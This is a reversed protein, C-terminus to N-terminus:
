MWGRTATAFDDSATRGPRNLLVNFGSGHTLYADHDRNWGGSITLFVNVDGIVGPPQGSVTRQDLWGVASGDPIVGGDLFGSNWILGAGVTCDVPLPGDPGASEIAQRNKLQYTNLRTQLARLAELSQTRRRTRCQLDL